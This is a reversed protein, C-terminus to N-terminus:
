LLDELEGAVSPGASAPGKGRTGDANWYGERLKARNWAADSVTAKSTPFEARVVAVAEANTAGQLILERFRAGSGRYPAGHRESVGSVAKRGSSGNPRAQPGCLRSLSGHPALRGSLEPWNAEFMDLAADPDGCLATGSIQQNGVIWEGTLEDQGFEVPQDVIREPMNFEGADTAARIVSNQRYPKAVDRWDVVELRPEAPGRRLSGKVIRALYEGMVPTVAQTLSVPYKEDAARFWDPYGLLRLGERCTIFRSREPHGTEHIKVITGSPSEWYLRKAIFPHIKVSEGAARKEIAKARMGSGPPTDRVNTWYQAESNSLRNVPMHQSVHGFRDHLDGIAMRVTRPFFKGGDPKELRLQNKHAIFHFRNRSSPLGHLIADTILITVGYGLAMWKDAWESYYARGKSWAESVSELVFARPRLSLAMDMTTKTMMLRPDSLGSSTIENGGRAMSWPACPPNAYVLDVRGAHQAIPWDGVGVVRDVKGRFNLDFTGRHADGAEEWQAIAEFSAARVGCTFGGGFINIGIAKM